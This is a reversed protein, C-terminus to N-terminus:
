DSDLGCREADDDWYPCDEGECDECTLFKPPWEEDDSDARALLGAEVADELIQTYPDNM